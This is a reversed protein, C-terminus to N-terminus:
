IKWLLYCIYMLNSKDSSCATFTFISSFDPLPKHFDLLYDFNGSPKLFYKRKWDNISNVYIFSMCNFAAFIPIIEPITKNNPTITQAHSKGFPNLCITFFTHLMELIKSIHIFYLVAVLKSKGFVRRIWLILKFGFESTRGIYSFTGNAMSKRINM